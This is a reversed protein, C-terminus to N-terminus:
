RRNISIKGNQVRLGLADFIELGSIDKPHRIDKSLVVKKGSPTNNVITLRM